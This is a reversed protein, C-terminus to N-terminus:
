ARVGAVRKLLPASMMAGLAGISTFLLPLFFPRLWGDSGAALTAQLASPLHPAFWSAASNSHQCLALALLVGVAMLAATQLWLPQPRRRAERALEREVRRWCNEVRAVLPLDRLVRVTEELASLEGSCHPCQSAHRTLARRMAVPLDGVLLDSSHLAVLECASGAPLDTSEPNWGSTGGHRGGRADSDSTM